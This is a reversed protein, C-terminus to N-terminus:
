RRDRLRDIAERVAGAANDSVTRGPGATNTDTKVTWRQGTRAVCVFM